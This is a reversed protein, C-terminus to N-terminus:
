PLPRPHLQAVVPRASMFNAQAANPIYRVLANDASSGILVAGNVVIPGGPNNGTPLTTLLSGTDAALAYTYSPNAAYVVGNAVALSGPIVQTSDVTNAWRVVGSASLSYVTGGITGFYLTSGSVAATGDIANNATYTWAVAGTAARLAYMNKDESGVCVLGGIVVPSAVVAGGTALSWIKAGTAADLGYVTGDLSGVFVMGQSIAPTSYVANGTTFKWVLAGTTANLAYVNQDYSGFYVLGGSYTPSSYIGNGTLYRWKFGGTLGDLAYLYGDTMGVYVLGVARMPSSYSFSGGTAYSWKQAGSNEDFARIIGGYFAAYVLGNVVTPNCDMPGDAAPTRWAQRLKTVTTRDLVNEYYNNGQHSASYGYESWNTRVLFIIQASNAARRGVATVWHTGPIADAPLRFSLNGAGAASAVALAVDETDFYIDVAEYAGFGSYNLTQASTPPGSTANVIVGPVVTFSTSSTVSGGSTKLTIKGTSATPPVSATLKTTSSVTVTTANTGNFSVTTSGTVFNSGNITIAAGLKGSTPSFSTLTPAAASAAPAALAATLSLVFLALTSQRDFMTSLM